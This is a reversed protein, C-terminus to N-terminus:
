QPKTWESDYYVNENPDVWTGPKWPEIVPVGWDPKGLEVKDGSKKIWNELLETMEQLQVAYDPDGALNNTEWPDNQIDFLQTNKEGFVNYKILKWRETRVGRQFNKFAFFLSDRIKQKEGRIVPALSKGEVTAPIPLGTLDCLTPFIDLLYCLAGSREGSPIGPGRMVLPIHVSHDYINQKGMLGHSGVALGNDGAFIIITNDYQGSEKLAELIRGIEADTYSIFGYYDAIHRRIKGSTRPWRELKEDRHNAEGFDFPHAPLFNKPLPLKDPDYMELYKKPMHRPDHPSQFSVYMFFPRDDRYSNLFNVASDAYMETSHKDTVFYRDERPFKGEPDFDNIPVNYHSSMGGFFIKDATTFSRAFSQKDNHWKGTHFTTHGAKRLVEPLIPHEPPLRYGNGELHFLTRGTMLMARSPMCVGAVLSAGMYNANIFATGNNVISDINPTIIHENGLAHITDFRQDDTFLFLINPKTRPADQALLETSLGGTAAGLSLTKLFNRRTMASKLM